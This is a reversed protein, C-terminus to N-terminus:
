SKRDSHRRVRAVDRPYSRVALLGVCGGAGLAILALLFTAHLGSASTPGSFVHEAVFGFTLPAAAEAAQRLCTRVSEARGWLAPPMIDLRAADLPPNMAGLGAAALALLPLDIWLTRTLLALAFIGGTGFYAAVGVVVRANIRGHAQLRDAFRGSVLVGALAGSGVVILLIVATAQGVHLWLGLYEVAFTRFGTFYFYGLASAVILARNTPIRLVYGLVWWLSRQRSRLEGRGRRQPEALGHVARAILWAPVALALFGARWTWTALEGAVLFGAGSGVVEGALVSSYVAGREKSPFYDGVLSAIAPAASATVVGLAIRTMLLFAYSTAFGSLAIVGGWTAITWVLVRIRNTRDVLWGFVFTACAAAILSSTLLLGFDTKGVQFAEQLPKAM